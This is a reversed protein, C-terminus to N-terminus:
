SPSPLRPPVQLVSPTTLLYVVREACHHSLYWVSLMAPLYRVSLMTIRCYVVREAYHHLLIGCASCLEVCSFSLMCAPM